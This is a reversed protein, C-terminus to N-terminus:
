FDRVTGWSRESLILSPTVQVIDENVSEGVVTKHGLSVLSAAPFSGDEIPYVCLGLVVFLPTLSIYGKIIHGTLGSTM